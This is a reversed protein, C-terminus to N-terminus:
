VEVNEIVKDKYYRQVRKVFDPLMKAISRPIPKGTKASYPVGSKFEISDSLARVAAIYRAGAKNFYADEKPTSLLRMQEHIMQEFTKARDAEDMAQMVLNRAADLLAHGDIKSAIPSDYIKSWGIYVSNQDIKVSTLDEPCRELLDKGSFAILCGFPKGVCQVTDVKGNIKAVIGKIQSKEPARRAYKVLAIDGDVHCAMSKIEDSADDIGAPLDIEEVNKDPLQHYQGEGDAYYTTGYEDMYLNNGKVLRM